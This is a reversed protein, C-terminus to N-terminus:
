ASDANRCAEELVAIQELLRQQEAQLAAVQAALGQIAALAVGQGDMPHITRDDSGVGFAATFDQAMPGIHRVSADDTRYNWTTIPLARVRELMDVPNVTGFNVKVNRDSIMTLRCIKQTPDCVNPACCDRDEQCPANTELCCFTQPDGDGGVTSCTRGACCTRNGGVTCTAGFKRCRKKNRRHKKRASTDEALGLKVLLGTSVAALTRGVTERRSVVPLTTADEARSSNTVTESQEAVGSYSLM